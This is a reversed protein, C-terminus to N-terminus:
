IWVLKYKYCNLMVTKPKRKLRTTDEYFWPFIGALKKCRKDRYVVVDMYQKQNLINKNNVRTKFTNDHTKEFRAYLLSLM